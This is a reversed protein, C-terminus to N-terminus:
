FGSIRVDTLREIELEAPNWVKFGHIDRPSAADPATTRQYNEVDGPTLTSDGSSERRDKEEAPNFESM